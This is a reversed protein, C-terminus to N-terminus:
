RGGDDLGCRACFEGAAGVDRVAPYQWGLRYRRLHFGDAPGKAGDRRLVFGGGDAKGTIPQGLQEIRLGLAVCDPVADLRRLAVGFALGELRLALAQPGIIAADHPMVHAQGDFLRGHGLAGFDRLNVEVRFYLFFLIM